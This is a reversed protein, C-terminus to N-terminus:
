LMSVNNEQMRFYVRSKYGWSLLFSHGHFSELHNFMVAGAATGHHQQVIGCCFLEPAHQPRSGPVEPLLLVCSGTQLAQQIVRVLAGANARHLALLSFGHINVGEDGSDDARDQCLEGQKDADASVVGDFFPLIM